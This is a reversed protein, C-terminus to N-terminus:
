KEVNLMWVGSQQGKQGSVYVTTGAVAIHSIQDFAALTTQVRGNHVDLGLAGVERTTSYFVYRGKEHWAAGTFADSSRLLLETFGNLSALWLENSGVALFLTERGHHFMTPLAAAPVSLAKVTDPDRPDFALWRNQARERLLLWGDEQGAITWSGAPLGFQITEKGEEIVVQTGNTTEMILYRGDRDVVNEALTSRRVAGESPLYTLLEGEWVGVLTNSDWRYTGEPLVTAQTARIGVIWDHEADEVLLNDGSRDWFLQVTGTPATGDFTMRAEEGASGTLFGLVGRDSLRRIVLEAGRPTQEIFALRRADPSAALGKVDGEVVRTPETRAWLWIDTVFTAREPRVEITKEWPHHGEKELRVRYTGPAIDQRTLPTRSTLLNNDLFISAGSPTTDFILTGNREITWKKPNWRYGATYFVVAPATVAFVLVLLLLWLRRYLM